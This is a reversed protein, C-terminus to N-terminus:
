PSSCEASRWLFFHGHITPAIMTKIMMTATADPPLSSVVVVAADAVVTASVCGANLSVVDDGGVVSAAVVAAGVVGAGVVAGGVVAGGGM